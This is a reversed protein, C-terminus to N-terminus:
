AFDMGEIAERPIKWDIGQTEAYERLDRYLEFTSIEGAAWALCRTGFDKNRSLAEQIKEQMQFIEDRDRARRKAVDEKKPVARIKRKEGLLKSNKIKKVTEYLLESNKITALQKIHEQTLFGAAAEQQIDDPLNLLCVRAQIWGRSQTLEKAMEEQTWGAKWFPKLAKAEQLINLDTRKINEELNLMRATLEDLGSKIIAPITKRALIVHAILRRHGSVTRYKHGDPGDWPQVTIPQQLGNTEISRALDLVDLPVIRGRCNFEEDCFIDSVPLDEVIMSSM